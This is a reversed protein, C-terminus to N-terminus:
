VEATTEFVEFEVKPAKQCVALGSMPFCSAATRVERQILASVVLEMGRLGTVQKLQEFTLCKALEQGSGLRRLSTLSISPPSSFLLCDPFSSM